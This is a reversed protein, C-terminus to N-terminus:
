VSLRLLQGTPRSLDGRPHCKNTMIPLLRQGASVGNSTPTTNPQPQFHQGCYLRLLHPARQSVLEVRQDAVLDLWTEQCARETLDHIGPRGLDVPPIAFPRPRKVTVASPKSARVINEFVTAHVNSIAPHHLGGLVEAYRTM